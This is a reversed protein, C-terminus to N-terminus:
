SIIREDACMAAFADAEYEQRARIWPLLFWLGCAFLLCNTRAHGLVLHGCEHRLLQGVESPTAEEIWRADLVVCNFGYLWIACAGTGEPLVGKFLYVQMNTWRVRKLYKARPLWAFPVLLGIAFYGILYYTLDEM